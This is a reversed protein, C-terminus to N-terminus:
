GRKLGMGTPSFVEGFADNTIAGQSGAGPVSALSRSPKPSSPKPQSGAVQQGPQSVIWGQQEAYEKAAEEFSKGGVRELTRSQQYEQVVFEVPSVAQRMRQGLFPDNLGTAWDVAAKVTDEGYKVEARIGSTELRNQFQLEAFQDQVFGGFEEPQEYADPVKMPEKPKKQAELRQKERRLEILEAEAEQRKRREDMMKRHAVPNFTKGTQEQSSEEEQSEPQIEEAQVETEAPQSTAEKGTEVEQTEALAEDAAEEEWDKGVEDLFSM